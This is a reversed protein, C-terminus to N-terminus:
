FDHHHDDSDIRAWCRHRAGRVAMGRGTLVKTYATLPGPVALEGTDDRRDDVLLIEVEPLDALQGALADLLVALSPRGLTPVVLSISLRATCREYCGRM